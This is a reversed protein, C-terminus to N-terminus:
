DGNRLSFAEYAQRNAKTIEGDLVVTGDGVLSGWARNFRLGNGLGATDRIARITERQGIKAMRKVIAQRDEDLQRDAREQRVKDRQEGQDRHVEDPKRVTVEWRRGGVDAHTGEQVDIAFLGGCGLRSGANLWLRYEGPREPNDKERRSLLMWSGAYEAAGAWSLDSLEAPQGPATSNRKNHHLLMPTAGESLVADGLRQFMDGQAFVSEERGSTGALYIPDFFAMDAQVDRLTRPLESIHSADAFRPLKDSFWLNDIASLSLGKSQAIRRAYDQLVVRGGEGSFYVVNGATTDFHNLFRTGSAVSVALDINILSKFTKFSAGTFTPVLKPIISNAHFQVVHTEADLEKASFLRFIPDGIGTDIVEIASQLESKLEAASVTPNDALQLLGEAKERIGRKIALAAVTRAYFGACAPTADAQMVQAIYPSGGCAELDAANVLWDVLLASDGAVERPMNQLHGWLLKHRPDYFSDANVIALNKNDLISPTFLVASLLRREVDANSPPKTDLIESTVRPPKGNGQKGPRKLTADHM